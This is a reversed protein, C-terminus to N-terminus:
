SPAKGVLKTEVRVADNGSDPDVTTTDHSVSALAVGLRPDDCCSYSAAMVTAYATVGGGAPLAGLNCFTSVSGDPCAVGFNHYSDSTGFGLVVGSAGDPGLNTVTITFTMTAGFKLRKHDGVMSVSLDASGAASAPQPALVPWAALLVSLGAIVAARVVRFAVM